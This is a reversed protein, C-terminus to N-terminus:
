SIITNNEQVGYSVIHISMALRGQYASIKAMRCQAFVSVAVMGRALIVGVDVSVCVCVSHTYVYLAAVCNLPEESFLARFCRLM